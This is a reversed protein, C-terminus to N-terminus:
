PNKQDVLFTRPKGEGHHEPTGEVARILDIKGPEGTHEKDTSITDDIHGYDYPLEHTWPTGDENVGSRTEGKRTEIMINKGFLKGDKEPAPANEPTQVAPREAEKALVAPPKAADTSGPHLLEGPHPFGAVDAEEPKPAPAAKRDVDLSYQDPEPPIETSLRRDRNPDVARRQARSAEILGEDSRVPPRVAPQGGGSPQLLEGPHPFEPTDEPKPVPAAKRDVDLSYQEPETVAGLAAQTAPDIDGKTITSQDGAAPQDKAYSGDAKGTAPEGRSNVPVNDIPTGTVAIKDADTVPPQASDASNRPSQGLLSNDVGVAEHAVEADPNNEVKNPRGPIRRAVGEHLAQTARNGGPFAAGFGAVAASQAPDINSIGKQYGQQVLDLGGLMAGQAVRQGVKGAPSGAFPLMGEVASEIPHAEQNAQYQARDDIAPIADQLKDQAIDAAAGGGIGGVIGGILTGVPGGIATGLAAGGAVAGAAPLLGHAVNRALRPIFSESQPGLGIDADSLGIDADSLGKTSQAQPGLGIDEDSLGIDADSLGEAM